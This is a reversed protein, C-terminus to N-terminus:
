HPVTSRTPLETELAHERVHDLARGLAGVSVIEDGFASAVVEPLPPHAHQSLDREIVRLVPACSAAPAGALIVRETDLLAALASIIRAFRTGLREVVETALPDAAAAATFVAEADIDEPARQRLFSAPHAEPDRLAERAWQRALKALGDANGVGELLDLFRMEGAGGRAGRLLHGEEVIGAGLREGTLVAVYNKLGHGAGQWGEALAALNADNDVLVTWGHRQTLHQAIDPNMREWFENVTGVTRGEADVPAPVGVAVALVRDPTVSAATLAEHITRDLVDLREEPTHEPSSFARDQRALPHGHLDAVTVRAMRQGCDVGVIVGAMPQFSYRRAPRGLRYGGHERQNEVEHIWGRQTLDECVDHVTARTLGTSAILDSGTVPEADWMCHLVARLNAERIQRTSASSKTEM